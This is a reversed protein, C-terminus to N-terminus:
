HLENRMVIYVSGQYEAGMGDLMRQLYEDTRIKDPVESLAIPYFDEGDDSKFFNIIEDTM